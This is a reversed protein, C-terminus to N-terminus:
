LHGLCMRLQIHCPNAILGVNIAVRRGIYFRKAIEVGIQSRASIYVADNILRCDVLRRDAKSGTLRGRALAASYPRPLTPANNVLKSMISDSCLIVTHDRAM